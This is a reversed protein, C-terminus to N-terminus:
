IKGNIIRKIGNKLLTENFNILLGLKLGSLKIYTLLQKMHIDEIKKVSKLELIILKNVVIDARFGEDIVLNEYKVPIGIQTEVQYGNRNLEFALAKEYVSELLGPGLTSHVKIAHGIIQNSLANENMEEGKHDEHEKHSGM